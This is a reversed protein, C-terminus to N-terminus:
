SAVLSQATELAVEQQNDSTESLSVEIHPRVGVADIDHGLPTKYFAATYRLAGGFSLDHTVQVSGKGLTKEGVLTARQNEKLAAALVEASAATNENVIVVLPISTASTSGSANRPSEGSERTEIRVITGSKVFLSAIDIAQTLFGGPNDRIDLIIAKAGQKTLSTLAEDVLSAANATVQHLKIIGVGDVMSAEVNQITDEGVHLTTIYEEGTEDQVSAPRRWAIVVDEGNHKKLESTVEAMTWADKRNGNIGVIVDGSQVGEEQAPSGEFVDVVYTNGEYESFLVGVGAYTSANTTDQVLTNYEEPTYYHMYPDGAAQALASIMDETAVDLDYNELSDAALINEVEDMRLAVSTYPDKAELSSAKEGDSGSPFSYGLSNLFPVEGRVVFGAVFALAILAVGVLIRVLRANYEKTQSATVIKRLYKSNRAM